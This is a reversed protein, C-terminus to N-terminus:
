QSINWIEALLAAKSPRWLLSNQRRQRDYKRDVADAIDFTRLPWLWQSDRNQPSAPRPDQCYQFFILRDSGNRWWCLEYALLSLPSLVLQSQRQFQWASITSHHSCLQGAINLRDEQYVKQELPPHHSWDSVYQICNGFMIQKKFDM